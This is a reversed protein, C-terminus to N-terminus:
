RGVHRDEADAAALLEQVDGRAPGQELVDGGLGRLFHDPMELVEGLLPGRVRDLDLGVRQERADDGLPLHAHVGVVMLGHAADRRAEADAAVAGSPITSAISDVFCANARPTCHCGSSSTSLRSKLRASNRRCM